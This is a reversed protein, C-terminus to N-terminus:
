APLERLYGNELALTNHSVAKIEDLDSSVLLISSGREALTRLREHMHLQLRRDLGWSPEFCLILRPGPEGLERNLIVRQITGGSLTTIPSLWSKPIQFPLYRAFSMFGKSNWFGHIYSDVRRFGVINDIVDLDEAIGRLFRRSPIYRVGANRLKGGTKPYPDGYLSLCGRPTARMCTLADELAEMAKGQPTHIGLIQGSSLTFTINKLIPGCSASVNLASANLVLSDTTYRVPNPHPSAVFDHANNGGIQVVAAATIEPQPNEEQFMAQLITENSIGTAKTDLKVMGNRLVIVRDGFRQIEELKHSIVIVGMGLSVARRLLTYLHETEEQTFPGSPEDLFLFQPRRVLAEALALWHIEAASLTGAKANLEISLGFQKLLNDYRSMLTKPRLLRFPGHVGPVYGALALNQWVCLKTVIDPHQPILAVGKRLATKPSRAVYPKGHLTIYGKRPRLFGACMRALTSKGAGNEGLLFCLEGSKFQLSLDKLAHVRNGPFTFSVEKLSLIGEQAQSSQTRKM